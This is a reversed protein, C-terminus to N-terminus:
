LFHIFPQFLCVLSRENVIESFKTICLLLIIHIVNYPITLLNANFTSFGMSKLVLTLYATLVGTPIYAFIGIIYVPWLHYDKIAEFLMWITIGQRNNMDGKTPDDRLIKNVIIKEEHETFWGKPNWRKKTQVASPVM